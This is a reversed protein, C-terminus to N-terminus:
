LSEMYEFVLRSIEAMNKKTKEEDTIDTTLIGLYYPKDKLDIIGVDHIKKVENGTKHYITIGEPLGQPLRDDFDSKKMFGFMEATLQKNTIEGQYMKILLTAMDKTSTKNEMMKTQSLGWLDVLNQIKSIGIVKSALVYAATNDSKEMMLRALTRISYPTGTPQYHIIGAGYDQVDKKQPIIKKELDVEGKESLHYLSALIPIKNVSAADLIMEENIGFGKNKNIDYAYISYTGSSTSIISNIKELLEEQSKTVDRPSTKMIKVIYVFGMALTLILILGLKLSIRNGKKQSDSLNLRHHDSYDQMNTESYFM